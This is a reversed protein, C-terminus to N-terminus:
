AENQWIKLSIAPSSVRNLFTKRRDEHVNINLRSLVLNSGWPNPRSYSLSRRVLRSCRIRPDRLQFRGIKTWFKPKEHPTFIKNAGTQNAGTNFLLAWKKTCPLVVDYLCRKVKLRRGWM